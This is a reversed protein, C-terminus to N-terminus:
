LSAEPVYDRVQLMGPRTQTIVVTTGDAVGKLGSVRIKKTKAPLPANGPDLRDALPVPKPERGNAGIAISETKIINATLGHIRGPRMLVKDDPLVRYYPLSEFVPPQWLGCTVASAAAGLQVAGAEVTFPGLIYGDARAWVQRGNWLELGSLRGALDTAGRIAGQFLNTEQEEMIELTVVSGRQVTLWVQNQGDVSVAKVQGGDAAVWEAFATIEQNRIVLACILRGSRDVMWWRAASNKSVKSQLAGSTIGDVLHPALLSEPESVFRTAVDDYTASYITQGREDDAPSGGSCFYVRGDIEVPAVNATIGNASARVFNVPEDRSITRNSIFWEAADTFILLYNSEIVHLIRESTQTRLADLRAASSSAAEINLNFYEGTASMALAGTRAKPAYYVGRDQFLAMGAFWGREDSVLSEGETEGIVTHYALASADASDVIRASVDYERGTLAGPFSMLFVRFAGSGGQDVFTVDDTMSPLDRLADQVAFYFAEWHTPNAVNPSVALKVAKTAEGDVTISLALGAAASSWRLVVEWVDTTKTYDGGLDVEPVAEYPWLDLTWDTDDDVDRYLRLSQLDQHFVGVTNAEGYFQLDPLLGATIAPAAVSAVKVRDNRYIDVWGATFVLTYSLSPDVKLVCHRVSASRAQDVLATGPMLRFGAQPVPEINKVRAGASYYQKLGLKGYLEPSFEGANLSSKLDGPRPAM